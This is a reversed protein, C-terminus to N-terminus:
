GGGTAPPDGEVRKKLRAFDEPTDLDAAAPPPLPVEAVLDPHREMLLRGGVDGTLRRAEDFLARGVLTPAGTVAGYRSAIIPKGTRRYADILADIASAEVYPQDGLLVVAAECDAPLAAIGAALSTGMGERFRANTVVRVRPGRVEAAIRDEAEGLVVVIEGCASGRANEVVRRVVSRGALPLLLKPRGMRRSQGAALVVAAIM